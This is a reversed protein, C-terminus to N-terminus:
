RLINKYESLIVVVVVVVVMDCELHKYKVIM